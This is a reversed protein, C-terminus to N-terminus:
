TARTAKKRTRSTTKQPRTRSHSPRLAPTGPHSGAASAVSDNGAQGGPGQANSAADRAADARLHKFIADSIQRKLARLAEKGTKGEAIKKDYYVRGGSHRYRVQTVAAM